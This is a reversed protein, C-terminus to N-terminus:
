KKSNIFKEIDDIHVFRYKNKKGGKLTRSPLIGTLVLRRVSSYKNMQVEDLLGREVIQKISYYKTNDM